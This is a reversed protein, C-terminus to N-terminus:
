LSLNTVKESSKPVSVNKLSINHLSSLYNNPILATLSPFLTTINHGLSKAFEYGAGESGTLPYSLGGTALVVNYSSLVRGNDLAVNFLDSAYSLTEVNANNIVEVGHKKIYSLLTNTVDVARMSAPYVRDGREVITELGIENFFNITKINDLSYFPARFFNSNPYVHSSFESWEKTNTLNCRGKGTIAIKKGCVDNKELIAIKPFVGGSLSDKSYFEKVFIAATFLGAAGGGIILVNYKNLINIFKLRRLEM